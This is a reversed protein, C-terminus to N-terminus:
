EHRDTEPNQSQIEIEDMNAMGRRWSVEVEQNHYVQKRLTGKIFHTKLRGHGVLKEVECHRKEFDILQM